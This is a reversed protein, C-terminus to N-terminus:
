RNWPSRTKPFSLWKRKKIRRLVGKRVREVARFVLGVYIAISKYKMVFANYSLFRIFWRPVFSISTLSIVNNFFVDERSKSRLGLEVRFEALSKQSLDEVDKRHIIGKDLAAETLETHPFYHLSFMRLDYPTPIALLLGVTMRKEDISEFPNDLILDYNVTLKYQKFLKGIRIILDNTYRRKFVETRVRESGSQIGITVSSMGADALTRVVFENVCVPIFQCHFPIGIERRYQVSFEEVWKANTVMMDDSFIIRKLHPYAKKALVLEEMVNEVTRKRIKPYLDKYINNCCYTCSYPCGRSAMLTYDKDKYIMLESDFEDLFEDNNIFYKNDNGWDPFVVNNVDIPTRIKNCVINNKDNLWINNVNFPQEGARLCEAVEIIAEEGEGICIMDAIQISEEPSITPHTGGWMIPTKLNTKILKTIRAATRFYSSRLSIGILDARHTMLFDLLLDIEVATPPCPQNPILTKFFVSEVDYGRKSLTHHLIRVGLADVDYLAFLIIKM